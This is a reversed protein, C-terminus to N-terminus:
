WRVPEPAVPKENDNSPPAAAPLLVGGLVAGAVAMMVRWSHTNSLLM